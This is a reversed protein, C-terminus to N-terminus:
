ASHRHSNAKESKNGNSKKFKRYLIIAIIIGTISILQPVSLSTFPHDLGGFVYGRDSDGRFFEMFFRIISYNFLYLVFVQGNFKKKKYFVILFIFNLLNLIAEMLQTPYLPINHPVGTSTEPSTFKVAIACEEAHRGWCCGASFCGMRGFFHALAIAPAMIDAVIKLDLKRKRVFWVVFLAGFILGGYFTGASTILSPIEGPHKLYFSIETVFLFIKAGFLGVIITYVIFDSLIKTDLNERKALKMSLLFASLVGLALLFGYTHITIPGIKILIPHM